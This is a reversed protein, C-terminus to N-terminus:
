AEQSPIPDNRAFTELLLDELRLKAKQRIAAVIKQEIAQQWAHQEKLEKPDIM